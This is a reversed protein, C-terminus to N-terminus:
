NQIRCRSTLCRSSSGECQCIPWWVRTHETHPLHEDLVAVHMTRYVMLPTHTGEGEVLVRRIHQKNQSATHPSQTAKTTQGTAVV